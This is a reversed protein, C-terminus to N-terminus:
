KRRENQNGGIGINKFDFWKSKEELKKLTEKSSKVYKEFIDLEEQNLSVKLKPKYENTRRYDDYFIKLLEIKNKDYRSVCNEYLDADVQKLAAGLNIYIYLKETGTNYNPYYREIIPTLQNYLTTEKEIQILQEAFRVNSSKKPRIRHMSTPDNRDAQMNKIRKTVPRYIIDDVKGKPVSGNTLTNNLSEPKGETFLNNILRDLEEMCTVYQRDNLKDDVLPKEGFLNELIIPAGNIEDFLVIAKIQVNSDDKKNIENIIINYHKEIQKIISDDQEIIFTNTITSKWGELKYKITNYYTKDESIIPLKKELESIKQLLSEKIRQSNDIKEIITKLEEVIKSIESDPISLDNIKYILYGIKAYIFSEEKSIDKEFEKLYEAYKDTIYDNIVNHQNVIKKTIEIYKKREESIDHEPILPKNENEAEAEARSAIEEFTEVEVLEEDTLGEDNTSIESKQKGYVFIECINHSILLKADDSIELLLLSNMLNELEENTIKKNNNLLEYISTIINIQEKIRTIETLNKNNKIEINDNIKIIINNIQSNLYDFLASFNINGSFDKYNNIIRLVEDPNSINCNSFLRILEEQSLEIFSNFDIKQILKKELDSIVEQYEKVKDELFKNLKMYNM